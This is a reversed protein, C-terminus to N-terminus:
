RQESAVYLLPRPIQLNFKPTLRSSFICLYCHLLCRLEPFLYKPCGPSLAATNPSVYLLIKKERLIQIPFLMIKTAINPM